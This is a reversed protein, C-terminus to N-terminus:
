LDLDEIKLDQKAAELKKKQKNGEDYKWETREKRLREVITDIEADTLEEPNKNFIIELSNPAVQTLPSKQPSNM